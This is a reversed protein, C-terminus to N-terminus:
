KIAKIKIDSLRDGARGTKRSLEHLEKSFERMVTADHLNFEYDTITDITKWYLRKVTDQNRNINVLYKWFNDKTSKKWNKVAIEIDNISSEIIKVIEIQTEDPKFDFFMIFDKLENIKDTIDDILRSVAFIDHRDLPTIFSTEVYDILKLRVKDAKNEHKEIKDALETDRTEMLELLEAICQSTIVCQKLLLDDFEPKENRKYFAKERKVKRVDKIKKMKLTM